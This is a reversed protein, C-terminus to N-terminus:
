RGVRISDNAQFYEVRMPSAGLRLLRLLLVTFPYPPPLFPARVPMVREVTAVRQGSYDTSYGLLTDVRTAANALQPPYMSRKPGIQVDRSCGRRTLEHSRIESCGDVQCCSRSGVTIHILVGRISSPSLLTAPDVPRPTTIALSPSLSLSLSLSRALSRALSLSHTHTHANCATYGPCRTV